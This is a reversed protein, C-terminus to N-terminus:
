DEILGRNLMKECFCDLYLGNIELDDFFLAAREKSAHFKPTPLYNQITVRWLGDSSHKVRILGYKDLLKIFRRRPLVITDEINTGNFKALYAVHTCHELFRGEAMAEEAEEKTDYGYQGLEGAGTKIEVSVGSKVVCDAIGAPHCREIKGTILRRVLVDARKGMAGSDITPNYRNLLREVKEKECVYKM